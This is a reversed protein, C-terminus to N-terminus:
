RKVGMPRSYWHPNRVQVTSVGAIGNKVSVPLMIPDKKTGTFPPIPFLFGNGNWRNWIPTRNTTILPEESQMTRVTLDGDTPVLEPLPVTRAAAVDNKFSFDPLTYIGKPGTCVYDLWIEVDGDNYVPLYGTGSTGSPLTWSATTVKAQWNPFEAALKCTLRSQAFLHPDKGDQTTQEPDELLRVWLDRVGDATTARIRSQRDYDFAMRIRSDVGRWHDPDEGEIDLALVPDRRLRKKGEYKEGFASKSWLTKVPADMLKSPKPALEVGQEGANPGSICWYSDECGFLEYTLHESM